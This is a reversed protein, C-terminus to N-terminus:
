NHDIPLLVHQQGIRDTIMGMILLDSERKATTRNQWDSPTHNGVGSLGTVMTLIWSKAWWINIFALRCWFALSSNAVDLCKNAVKFMVLGLSNLFYPKSFWSIQCVYQLVWYPMPWKVSDKWCTVVHLGKIIIEYKNLILELTSRPCQLVM